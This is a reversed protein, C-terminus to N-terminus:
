CLGPLHVSPCIASVAEKATPLRVEPIVVSTPISKAERTVSEMSSRWQSKVNALVQQTTPLKTGCYDPKKEGQGMMQLLINIDKMTACADYIDASTVLLNVGIGVYPVAEASIAATNRAVGQALRHNVSAAVSKAAKAHNDQKRSLGGFDVTLKQHRRTVDDIAAALKQNKSNLSKKEVNGADLESKLKKNSSELLKNESDLRNTEVGIKKSLRAKPSNKLMKDAFVEGGILLAKRLGTYMLDHFSDSVLTAINTAVLGVLFFAMLGLKIVSLGFWQHLHSRTDIETNM